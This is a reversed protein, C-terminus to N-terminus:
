WIMGGVNILDIISLKMNYTKNEKYDNYINAWKKPCGISDKNFDLCIVM